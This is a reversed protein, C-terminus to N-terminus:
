EPTVNEFLFHGTSCTVGMAPTGRFSQDLVVTHGAATVVVQKGARAVRFPMPHDLTVQGLITRQEERADGNRVFVDFVDSDAQRPTMQLSVFDKRSAIKVTAVPRLANDHRTQIARFVGSIATAGAITHSDMALVGGPAANCDFSLRQATGAQSATLGIVMIGASISRLIM